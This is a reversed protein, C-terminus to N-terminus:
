NQRGKTLNQDLIGLWVPSIQGVMETNEEHSELFPSRLRRAKTLFVLGM